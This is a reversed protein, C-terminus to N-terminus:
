ICLACVDKLIVAHDTAMLENKSSVEKSIEKRVDTGTLLVRDESEGTSDV